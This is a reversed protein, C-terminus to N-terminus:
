SLAMVGSRIKPRSGKALTLVSRDNKHGARCSM